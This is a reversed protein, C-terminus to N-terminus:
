TKSLKENECSKQIQIEIKSVQFQMLKFMNINKKIHNQDITLWGFTFPHMINLM